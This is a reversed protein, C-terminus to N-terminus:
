VPQLGVGPRGPHYQLRSDRQLRSASDSERIFTSEGAQKVLPLHDERHLALVSRLLLRQSWSVLEM